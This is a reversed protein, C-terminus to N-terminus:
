VKEDNAQKQFWQFFGRKNRLDCEIQWTSNSDWAILRKFGASSKAIWTRARGSGSPISTIAPSIYEIKTFRPKELRRALVVHGVIRDQRLSVAAFSMRVQFAIRTKEPVVRVPGCRKVLKAFRRFLAVALPSKGALHQRLSHRSCSHSQNRNVFGRGCKPCEWLPTLRM